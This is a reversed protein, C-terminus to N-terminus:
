VDGILQVDRVTFTGQGYQGAWFNDGNSLCQMSIEYDGPQFGTYVRRRSWMAHHGNSYQQHAVGEEENSSFVEGGTTGLWTGNIVPRCTFWAGGNVHYYSTFEQVEINGHEVTLTTQYETMDYWNSDIGNNIKWAGGYADHGQGVKDAVNDLERVILVSASDTASVDLTGSDNYCRISFTHTGASINKYLRSHHWMTWSAYTSTLGAQWRANQYTQEESPIPQGDMFPLCGAHGGTGIPLSIAVEIDGGASDFTLDSGALKLMPDTVGIATGALSVKQFVKNKVQDYERTIAVATSEARGVSVSGSSTRCEVGLTHDGAPIDYYVRVRNWMQPAFNTRMRGEHWTAVQPLNQAKGAWEGDITPRCASDGGGNLPISLEIELPGGRTTIPADAGAIKKWSGSAVSEAGKWRHQYMGYCSNCTSGGCDVDEEDGSKAGDVM